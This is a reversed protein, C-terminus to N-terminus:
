RLSRMVSFNQSQAPNFFSMLVIVPVTVVQAQNIISVDTYHGRYDDEKYSATATSLVQPVIGQPPDVILELLLIRPNFGTKLPRLSAKFGPTPTAVVCGVKLTTHEGILDSTVVASVSGPVIPYQPGVAKGIAQMTEPPPFAIAGQGVIKNDVTTFVALSLHGADPRLGSLSASIWQEAQTCPGDNRVIEFTFPRAEPLTIAGSPSGQRINGARYCSNPVLARSLLTFSGDLESLLSLEPQFEPQFM